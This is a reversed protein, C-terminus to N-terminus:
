AGRRGRAVAVRFCRGEAAHIDIGVVGGESAVRRECSERRIKMWGAGDVGDLEAGFNTWRIGVGVRTVGAGGWRFEIGLPPSCASGRRVHRCALRCEVLSATA